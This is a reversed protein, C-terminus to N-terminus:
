FKDQFRFTQPYVEGEVLDADLIDLPDADVHDLLAAGLHALKPQLLNHPPKPPLILMEVPYGNFRPLRIWRALMERVSHLKGRKTPLRVSQM